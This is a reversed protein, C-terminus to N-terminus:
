DGDVCPAHIESADVRVSVDHADRVSVTVFRGDAGGFAIEVAYHGSTLKVGVGADLMNVEVGHELEIFLAAQERHLM